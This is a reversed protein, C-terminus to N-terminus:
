SSGTEPQGFTMRVWGPPKGQRTVEVTKPYPPSLDDGYLQRRHRGLRLETIVQLALDPDREELLGILTQYLTGVGFGVRVWASREDVGDIRTRAGAFSSRIEKESFLDVLHQEKESCWRSWETLVRALHGPVAEVDEPSRMGLLPLRSGLRPFDRHKAVRQVQDLGGIEGSFTGEVCEAFIKFQKPMMRNGSLSYTTIEQVSLATKEPMCDSVQLFRLIDYKPDPRDNPGVCSFVRSVYPSGIFRANPRGSRLSEEIERTFGDDDKAHSWLLATRIAGKLSSGPLYPVDATKIGERIEKPSRMTSRNQMRYRRFQIVDIREARVFDTLSFDENIEGVLRDRQEPTLSALFATRDVRSIFRYQNNGSDSTFYDGPGYTLGTGIHVPTGTTVTLKM